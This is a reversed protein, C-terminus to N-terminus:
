NGSIWYTRTVSNQLPVTFRQLITGNQAKVTYIIKTWIYGSPHPIICNSLRYGSNGPRLMTNLRGIVASTSGDQVSVSAEIEIPLQEITTMNNMWVTMDFKTAEAIHDMEVKSIGLKTSFLMPSLVNLVVASSKINGDANVATLTYITEGAGTSEPIVLEQTGVPSVGMNINPGSGMTRTIKTQTIPSPPTGDQVNWQFFVRSRFGELAQFTNQPQAISTSRIGFLQIYPESPLKTVNMPATPIGAGVVPAVKVAPMPAASLTALLLAASVPLFSFINKM